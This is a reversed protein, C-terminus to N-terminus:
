INKAKENKTFLLLVCGLSRFVSGSFVCFCTCVPGFALVGLYLGLFCACALVFVFLLLFVQFGVSFGSFESLVGM